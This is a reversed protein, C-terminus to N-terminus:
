WNFDKEYGLDILLQGATQKFVRKHEANFHTKWEGTVGKRFTLTPEPLLDAIEHARALSIRYGLHHAINMIENLVVDRSGVLKEYTTVYMYPEELWGYYAEFLSTIDTFSHLDPMNWVSEQNFSRICSVNVIVETIIDDLPKQSLEPWNQRLKAIYYAFSIVSDRPDRYVFIGKYNGQKAHQMNSLSAVAHTGLFVNPTNNFDHISRDSLHLLNDRSILWPNGTILTILHGMLHTGCKPIATLFIKQEAQAYFSLILCLLISKKSTVNM